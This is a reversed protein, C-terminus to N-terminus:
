SIPFSVEIRAIAITISPRARCARDSETVFDTFSIRNVDLHALRHRHLHRLSSALQLALLVVDPVTLAAQEHLTGLSPGEVYELVLHPVPRRSSPGGSGSSAPIRAREHARAELLLDEWVGADDVEDPRPLKVVVPSWLDTSWALWSECHTGGGLLQWALLGPLLPEGPALDRWSEETDTM